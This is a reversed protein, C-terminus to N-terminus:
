GHPMPTPSLTSPTAAPWVFLPKRSHTTVSFQTGRPLDSFQHIGYSKGDNSADGGSHFPLQYDPPALHIGDLLLNRVHDYSKKDKPPGYTHYLNAKKVAPSNRSHASLM